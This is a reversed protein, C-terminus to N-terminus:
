RSNNKIYTYFITHNNSTVLM